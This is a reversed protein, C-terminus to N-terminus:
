PATRTEASRVPSETSAPAVLFPRLTSLVDERLREILGEVYGAPDSGPETLPMLDMALTIQESADTEHPQLYTANARRRGLAALDYRKGGCVQSDFSAILSRALRDHGTSDLQIKNDDALWDLGRWVECGVFTELPIDRSVRKVAEVAALATAVHTSHKDALNHTYVHSPRTARLVAELDDILPDLQAQRLPSSEHGLQLMASYGGASAATRQEQRRLDAMKPADYRAYRGSRPSRGGLTACVGTFARDDRGRCEVIPAIAMIEIDDPHAGVCLHTTRALAVDLQSEDPVFLDAQPNHLQM